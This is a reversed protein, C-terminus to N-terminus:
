RLDIGRYRLAREIRAIRQELTLSAEAQRRAQEAAEAAEAQAIMAARNREAELGTRFGNLALRYDSGERSFLWAQGGGRDDSQMDLLRDLEATVEDLTGHEAVFKKALEFGERTPAETVRGM